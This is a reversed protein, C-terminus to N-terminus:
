RRGGRDGRDSYDDMKVYDLMTCRRRNTDRNTRNTITGAHLPM